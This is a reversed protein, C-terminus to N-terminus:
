CLELGTVHAQNNPDDHQGWCPSCLDPRLLSCRHERRVKEKKRRVQVHFKLSFYSHPTSWSDPYEWSLEMQSGKLPKLQLNKPPDPKVASSLCGKNDQRAKSGPNLRRIKSSQDKWRGTEIAGGSRQGGPFCRHPVEASSAEELHSSTM